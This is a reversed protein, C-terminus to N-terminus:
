ARDPNGERVESQYLRLFDNQNDPVTYTVPTTIKTGRLYDNKVQAVEVELIADTSMVRMEEKVVRARGSVSVAIDPPALINIMVRNNLAINVYTDHRRDCAFRLLSPTVAYISGFPATNPSGTRGVTAVIVPPPFQENNHYLKFVNDPLDARTVWFGTTVTERSMKLM